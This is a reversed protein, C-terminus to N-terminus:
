KKVDDDWDDDDDKKNNFTFSSLDKKSYRAIIFAPMIVFFLFLNGMGVMKQALVTHDPMNYLVYFGLFIVLLTLICIIGLIRLFSM